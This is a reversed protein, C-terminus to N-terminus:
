LNSLISSLMREIPEVEHGYVGNLNEVGMPVGAMDDSSIADAPIDARAEVRNKQGEKTPLMVSRVDVSRDRCNIMLILEGFRNIVNAAKVRPYDVEVVSDKFLSDDFSSSVGVTSEIASLVPIPTGKFTPSAIVINPKPYFADSAKDIQNDNIIAAEKPIQGADVAM